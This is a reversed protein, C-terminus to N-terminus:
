WVGNILVSWVAHEGAGGGRGGGGGGGSGGGPSRRGLPGGGGGGGGGGGSSSFMAPSPSRLPLRGQYRLEMLLERRRREAPTLNTHRAAPLKWRPKKKKKKMMMKSGRKKGGEWEREREREQDRERRQAEEFSTLAPASSAGAIPPLLQSNSNNRTSVFKANLNSLSLAMHSAVSVALEEFTLLRTLPPFLRRHSFSLPTSSLSVYCVHMHQTQVATVGDVCLVISRPTLSVRVATRTATSPYANYGAVGRREREREREEEREGGRKREEEYGGRTRDIANFVEDLEAGTVEVTLKSIGERFEPKSLKADKNADFFGFLNGLKHFYFVNLILLRFEDREVTGNKNGVSSDKCTVRFAHTLAKKNDMQAFLPYKGRAGRKACDQFFASLERLSIYETGDPDLAHWLAHMRSADDFVAHADKIATGMEAALVSEQVAASSVSSGM